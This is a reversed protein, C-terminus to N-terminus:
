DEIRQLFPKIMIVVTITIAFTGAEFLPNHDNSNPDFTFIYLNHDCYEYNYIM